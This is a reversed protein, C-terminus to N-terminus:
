RERWVKVTGDKLTKTRIVVGGRQHRAMWEKACHQVRSASGKSRDAGPDNRPVLFFDGPQLHRMPYRSFNGARAPRIPPRYKTRDPRHIDFDIKDYGRM